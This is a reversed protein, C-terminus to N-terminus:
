ALDSSDSFSAIYRDFISSLFIVSIILSSSNTSTVGVFIRKLNNATESMDIEISREMIGDNVSFLEVVGKDSQTNGGRLVFLESYSDSDLDVTLFNQYDEMVLQEAEAGAFTFVYVSRSVNNSIRRM